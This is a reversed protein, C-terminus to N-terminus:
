YEALLVCPVHHARTHHLRPLIQACRPWGFAPCSNRRNNKQLSHQKIQHKQAQLLHNTKHCLVERFQPVRFRYKKKFFSFDLDNSSFVGERPPRKTYNNKESRNCTRGSATRQPHSSRTASKRPRSPTTSPRTAHSM